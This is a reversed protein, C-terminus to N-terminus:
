IFQLGAFNKNLVLKNDVNLWKDLVTAYVDRFDVQYKLDGNDLTALDPAANYIGAKKLKGWIDYHQQRHRPPNWLIL